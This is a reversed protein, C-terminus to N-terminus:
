NVDPYEPPRSLSYSSYVEPYREYVPSQASRLEAAEHDLRIGTYHSWHMRDTGQTFLIRLEDASRIKGDCSCLRGQGSRVQGQTM